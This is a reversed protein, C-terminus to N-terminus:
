TLAGRACVDWRDVVQGHEVVWAENFNNAVPCAHNPIVQLLQGTRIEEATGSGLRLWGHEESLKELDLTPHGVVIGYGATTNVGHAGKDMSLAKAGADCIARNEHATSVVRTLVTLACQDISTVGLAAQIADYFVYNGPRVETIGDVSLDGELGPTSGASVVEVEIRMARVHRAVQVLRECQERAVDARMQPDIVGYTTGEHICVGRFRIGPLDAVRACVTAASEWPVGVRGFGADVKVLVDHERNEASFAEGIKRCADVSDVATMVNARRSLALLRRVKQLGVIPYCVLVERLGSDVFAEAEALKATTIGLAGLQMQRHAVPAMKHSKAHPRVGKGASAAKEQIGVINDELKKKDVLLCPTDLDQVLTGNM